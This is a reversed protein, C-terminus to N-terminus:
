YSAGSTIRIVCKGHTWTDVLERPNYQLVRYRANKPILSGDEILIKGSDRNQQCPVTMNVQQEASEAANVGSATAVFAIALALRYLM